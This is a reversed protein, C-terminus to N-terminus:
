VNSSRSIEIYIYIIVQLAMLLLGEAPTPVVTPATLAEAGRGDNLM